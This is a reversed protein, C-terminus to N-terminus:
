QIKLCHTMYLCLIPSAKRANRPCTESHGTVQVHSSYMNNLPSISHNAEGHNDQYQPYFFPIGSTQTAKIESDIEIPFFIMKM